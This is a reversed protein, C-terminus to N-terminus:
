HSVIRLSPGALLSATALNYVLAAVNKAHAEDPNLSIQETGYQIAPLDVNFSQFNPGFREVLKQRDLTKGPTTTLRAALHEYELPKIL